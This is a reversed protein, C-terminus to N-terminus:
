DIAGTASTGPECYGEPKEAGAAFMENLMQWARKRARESLETARSLSNAEIERQVLTNLHNIHLLSDAWQTLQEASITPPTADM